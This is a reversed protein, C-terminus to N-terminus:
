NCGPKGSVWGCPEILGYTLKNIDADFLFFRKSLVKSNKCLNLLDAYALSTSVVCYLVEFSVCHLDSILPM